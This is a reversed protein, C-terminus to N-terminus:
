HGEENKEIEASYLYEFYRRVRMELDGSINRRRLHGILINLEKQMEKSKSNLEQFIAGLAGVAYAYVGCAMLAVFILFIKETITTPAIDGYGLTIM